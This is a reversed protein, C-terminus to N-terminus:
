DVTLVRCGVDLLSCSDGVPVGVVLVLVACGCNDVMLFTSRHLFHQTKTAGRAWRMKKSEIVRM